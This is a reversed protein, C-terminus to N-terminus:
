QKGRFLHAAGSFENKHIECPSASSPIKKIHRYEAAKIIDFAGIIKVVISAERYWMKEIEKEIDKYKSIRNYEKVSINNDTIM